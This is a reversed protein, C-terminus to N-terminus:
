WNKNHGRYCTHPVMLVTTLAVCVKLFLFFFASESEAKIVWM